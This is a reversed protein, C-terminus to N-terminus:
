EISFTFPTYYSKLTICNYSFVVKGIAGCALLTFSYTGATASSWCLPPGLGYVIFIQTAGQSLQILDTVLYMLLFIVLRVRRKKTDVVFISTVDKVLTKFPIHSSTAHTHTSLCPSIIYIIAVVFLGLSLWILSEIGYADMFYAAPIQSLGATAEFVARAVAIRLLRSKGSTIDSLYSYCGALFLTYGGGLGSLISCCVLFQLPLRFAVGLGLALLWMTFGMSSVLLPVKRGLALRDSLAGLFPGTFVAPIYSMTTALMIWFATDAAIEQQIKYDPNSTTNKDDCTGNIADDKLLTFNRDEALREEIYRPLALFGIPSTGFTMLFIAPEVSVKTLASSIMTKWNIAITDNDKLLKSDSVYNHFHTYFTQVFPVIMM